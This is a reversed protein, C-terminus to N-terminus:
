RVPAAPLQAASSYQTPSPAVRTPADAPAPVSPVVRTCGATAIPNVQASQEGRPVIVCRVRERQATSAGTADAAAPAPQMALLAMFLLSISDSM